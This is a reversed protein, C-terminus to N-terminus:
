RPRLPRPPPSGPGPATPPPPIVMRLSAAHTSLHDVAAADRRRLSEAGSAQVAPDLGTALRIQRQDHGVHRGGGGAHERQVQRLRRRHEDALCLRAGDPPRARAMRDLLPHALAQVPGWPSASARSIAASAAAARSHGHSASASQTWRTDDAHVELHVRMRAPTGRRAAARVAAPPASAARAMMVVSGNGFSAATSTVVSMPVNRTPPMALPEPMISGRIAVM